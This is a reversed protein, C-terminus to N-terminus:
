ANLFITEIRYASVNVLPNERLLVLDARKGVEISGLDRAFGLVRANELTTARLLLAAAHLKLHDHIWGSFMTAEMAASWLQPLNKMWCDLDYRTAPLSGQAHIAGQADKVCYSIKRKHVDLSIYYM